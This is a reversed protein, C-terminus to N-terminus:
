PQPSPRPLRYIHTPEETGYDSPAKGSWIRVFGAKELARWSAPNDALVAAIVSPAEQLREWLGATFQRIMETGVGLGVRDPEGILYDIGAAAPPPDVMSLERMYRREDGLLYSQILGIPKDEECVLFVEMPDCGDVSAGFEAEVGASSAEVTGWETAAVHPMELWRAVLPFDSRELDRFELTCRNNEM